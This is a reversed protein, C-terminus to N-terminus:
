RDVEAELRDARLGLWEIIQFAVASGKVSHSGAVRRQWDERIERAARRLERAAVRKEEPTM